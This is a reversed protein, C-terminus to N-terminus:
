RQMLATLDNEHIVFYGARRALEFFTELTGVFENDQLVTVDTMVGHDATLLLRGHVMYPQAPESAAPRSFYCDELREFVEWAQNTELMKAHRAAGRETWLILSRVNRAITVSGRVSPRHKLERLEKGEIKYFHKGALFRKANRAYNNQINKVDAGYLQALLDTTIVPVSNHTIPTLKEPTITTIAM